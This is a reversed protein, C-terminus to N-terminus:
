RDMFIFFYGAINELLVVVNTDFKLALNRLKLSFFSNTLTLQRVKLLPMKKLLNSGFALEVNHSDTLFITGLV